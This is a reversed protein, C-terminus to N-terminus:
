YNLLLKQNSQGAVTKGSYVVNCSLSTLSTSVFLRTSLYGVWKNRDRKREKRQTQLELCVLRHTLFVTDKCVILPLSRVSYSWVVCFPVSPSKQRNPPFCLTTQADKPEGRVRWVRPWDTLLFVSRYLTSARRALHCRMFPYKFKKGKKQHTSISSAARM